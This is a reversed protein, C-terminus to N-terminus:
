SIGFSPVRGGLVFGRGNRWIILEFADAERVVFSFRHQTRRRSEQRKVKADGVSIKATPSLVPSHLFSSQLHNTSRHVRM